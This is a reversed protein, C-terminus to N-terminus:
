FCIYDASTFVPGGIDNVHLIMEGAQAEGGMQGVGGDLEGGRRQRRHAGRVAHPLGRVRLQVRARFVARDRARRRRHRADGGRGVARDSGDRRPPSHPLSLYM